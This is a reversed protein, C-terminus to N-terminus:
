LGVRGLGEGGKLVLVADQEDEGGGAVVGAELLLEGEEAMVDGVQAVAVEDEDGDERLGTWGGGGVGEAGEVRRDNGILLLDEDAAAEFDWWGAEGDDEEALVATFFEAGGGGDEDVAEVLGDVGHGHALVFDTVAGGLLFPVRPTKRM